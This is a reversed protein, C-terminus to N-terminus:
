KVVMRTVGLDAAMKRIHDAGEQATVMKTDHVQKAVELKDTKFRVEKQRQMQQTYNAEIKANLAKIKAELGATDSPVSREVVVPQPKSREATHMVIMGCTGGAFFGIVVGMWYQKM